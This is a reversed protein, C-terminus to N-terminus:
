IRKTGKFRLLKFLLLAITLVIVALRSITIEKGKVIDIFFLVSIIIIGLNVIAAIIFAAMYLHYDSKSDTYIKDSDYYSEAYHYYQDENHITRKLWLKKEWKSHIKVVLCALSFFVLLLVLMPINYKGYIAFERVAYFLYVISVLVPLIFWSGRKEMEYKETATRGKEELKITEEDPNIM